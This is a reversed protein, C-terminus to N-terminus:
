KMKISKVKESEQNNKTENYTAAIAKVLEAKARLFDKYERDTIVAADYLAKAEQVTINM